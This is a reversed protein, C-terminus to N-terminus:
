SDKRAMALFSNIWDMGARCWRASFWFGPFAARLVLCREFGLLASGLFFSDRPDTFFGAGFITAFPAGEDFFTTLGGCAFAAGALARGAIGGLVPVTLALGVTAPRLGGGASARSFATPLAAVAGLAPAPAPVAFPPEEFPPATWFGAL